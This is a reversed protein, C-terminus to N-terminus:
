EGRLWRVLLDLQEPTVRSTEGFAPMRDNKKGYFREHAPNRIFEKLWPASGYGTFDPGSGGKTEHFAHCDTCDLAVEALLKKGEAILAADRLDDARQSPLRAEASIAAIIKELQAKEDPSYASVDDLVVRVMRSKKEGAKPLAFITHGFYRPTEIQKPDMFGRLWDRSGFGALDPASPPEGPPATLPGAIPPPRVGVGNHGAYTHCSACHEAFLRPGQTLPDTRLLSLAGETPIGQRDRALEKAREANQHALAVAAAHKPDRADHSFAMGTLVGFGALGAFIVFVNFVHGM